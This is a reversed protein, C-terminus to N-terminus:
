LNILLNELALKKNINTTSLFFITSYVLLISKKIQSFSFSNANEKNEKKDKIKSILVERLYRLWIELVEKLDEEFSDNQRELLKQIYKLRFSLGSRLIKEFDNFFKKEKELKEPNSYFEIVRGPKGLSINALYDAKQPNIKDSLFYRKIEEKSVPFFRMAQVRSLITPLLFEPRSTILILFTEGKPEELIKLLSNQAQLNMLHAEDIIAVKFSSSYPKLSLKWILDRIQSIKIENEKEPQIFILDPYSKRQIDLCNQCQDCPSNKSSCNLFKVFEVAFTKKGIKEPGVFLLAHPIKKNEFMRQIIKWQKQHGILM